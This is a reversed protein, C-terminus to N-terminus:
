PAEHNTERATNSKNFIERKKKVPTIMTVWVDLVDGKTYNIKSM